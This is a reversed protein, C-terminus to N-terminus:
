KLRKDAEAQSLCNLRSALETFPIATDARATKLLHVPTTAENM